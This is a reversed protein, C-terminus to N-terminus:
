VGEMPPPQMMPAETMPEGPTAMPLGETPPMAGMGGMQEPPVAGQQEPPMMQEPGMPQPPQNAMQAMQIMQQLKIAAQANAFRETWIDEDVDESQGLGLYKERALSVPILPNEGQTAMVATQINQREDQPQDIALDVEVDIDDPIESFKIEYAQGSHITKSSGGGHKKLMLLAIRCAEGICWGVMRQYNILPLRGAQSLLAVMSFPANAGLAEGLAQRYITSEESKREAIELSAQVSPDIVLKTVPTLTAGPPVSIVGGPTDFDMAVQDDVQGQQLMWMPNAGIKFVNSYLVTLALNQRKWLGSKDVTYLFPQRTSYDASRTLM